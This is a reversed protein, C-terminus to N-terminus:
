RHRHKRHLVGERRIRKGRSPTARPAFIDPDDEVVFISPRMATNYRRPLRLVWNM